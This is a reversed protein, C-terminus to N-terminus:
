STKKPLDILGRGVKKLKNDKKMEDFISDLIGNVFRGSNRSCYEKAIEIAENISVKPPIEPFYLLETMAMMILIREVVGIRELEWNDVKKTIVEDFSDTNQLVLDVLKNAFELNEEDDIKTFIDAKVKEIPDKSMKHAYLTQMIKIRLERRKVSM